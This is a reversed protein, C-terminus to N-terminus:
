RRGLSLQPLASFQIRMPFLEILINGFLPLWNTFNLCSLSFCFIILHVLYASHSSVHNRQSSLTQTTSIADSWGFSLRAAQGSETILVDPWFHLQSIALRRTFRIKLLRGNGDAMGPPDPHIVPHIHCLINDGVAQFPDDLQIVGFVHPPRNDL